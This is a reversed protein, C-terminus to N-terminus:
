VCGGDLANQIFFCVTKFTSPILSELKFDHFNTTHLRKGLGSYFKRKRFFMIKFHTCSVLDQHLILKERERTEVLLIYFLVILALKYYNVM